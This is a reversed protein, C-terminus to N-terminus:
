KVFEWRIKQFSTVVDVIDKGQPLTIFQTKLTHNKKKGSYYKKQQQYDLPREMAQESSDVILEDKVLEEQFDEFKIELVM